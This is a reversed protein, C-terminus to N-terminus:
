KKDGGETPNASRIGMTAGIRQFREEHKQLQEESLHGSQRAHQLYEGYRTYQDGMQDRMFGQRESDTLKRVADPRSDFADLRSEQEKSRAELADMKETMYRDLNKHESVSSQQDMTAARDYSSWKQKEAAQEQQQTAGFQALM